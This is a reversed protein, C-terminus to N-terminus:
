LQPFAFKREHVSGNEDIEESTDISFTGVSIQCILGFHTHMIQMVFCGINSAQPM